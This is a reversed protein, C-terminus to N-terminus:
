PTRRIKRENSKVGNPGDGNLGLIKAKRRKEENKGGFLMECLSSVTSRPKVENWTSGELDGNKHIEIAWCKWAGNQKERSFCM